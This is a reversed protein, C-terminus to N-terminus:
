ITCLFRFTSTKPPLPDLQRGTVIFYQQMALNLGAFREEAKRQKM